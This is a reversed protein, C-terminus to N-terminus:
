LFVYVYFAPGALRGAQSAALPFNALRTLKKPSPLKLTNGMLACQANDGPHFM